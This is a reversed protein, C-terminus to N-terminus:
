RGLLVRLTLYILVAGILGQGVVVPWLSRGAGDLVLVFYSYLPSRLWYLGGGAASLIHTSTDPDVLPFGNYFAAGTLAGTAAALRCGLVIAGSKLLRMVTGDDSTAVMGQLGDPLSL